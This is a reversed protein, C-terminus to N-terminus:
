EHHSQSLTSNLSYFDSSFLATAGVTPQFRMKNYRSHMDKSMLRQDVVECTDIQLETPQWSSPIQQDSRSRNTDLRAIQRVSSDQDKAEQCIAERTMNAQEVQCLLNWAKLTGDQGASLLRLSYFKLQEVFRDNCSHLESGAPQPFALM